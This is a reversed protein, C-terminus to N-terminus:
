LVSIFLKDEEFISQIKESQVPWGDHSFGCAIVDKGKHEIKNLEDILEQVTM